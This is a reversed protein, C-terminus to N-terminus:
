INSIKNMEPLCVCTCKIMCRNMQMTVLISQIHGAKFLPYAHSNLDRYDNTPSGDTTVRSIFYNTISGITYNPITAEIWKLTNDMNQLAFM